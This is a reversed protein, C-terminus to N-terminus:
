VKRLTNCLAERLNTNKELSAPQGKHQNGRRRVSAVTVTLHSSPSPYCSEFLDRMALM